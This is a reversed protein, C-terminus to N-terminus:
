LPQFDDCPRRLLEALEEAAVHLAPAVRHRGRPCLQVLSVKGVRGEDTPRKTYLNLLDESRADYDWTFSAEVKGEVKWHTEEVPLAYCFLTSM